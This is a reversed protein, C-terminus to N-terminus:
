LLLSDVTPKAQTKSPKATKPPGTTRKRLAGTIMALQRLLAEPVDLDDYGQYQTQLAGVIERRRAELDAPSKGDLDYDPNIEPM